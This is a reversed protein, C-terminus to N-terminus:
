IETMSAALRRLLPHLIYQLLTRSGTLVIVEAPMGPQMVRAGLQQLGQETVEVRGLYYAQKGDPDTLVDQSVSIIRGSVVLQPAHPFSSFRIDVEQGPQIRDIQLPPFRAEITLGETQPVLDLLKQAPQVVAGVSQVQLGVVQGAVPARIELLAVDQAVALIKKQIAVKQHEIELLSQKSRMVNTRLDNIATLQDMKSSELQLLKVTPAYGERVLDRVGTLEQEILQLQAQRNSLSQEFGRLAAQQALQNEQLGSLESSAAQHQAQVTLADLKFLLDGQAVMQGEHVAVERVIGGHLHQVAKRKTAITVQGPAPVGEALPAFAAWVVFGGFGLVFISMARRFSRSWDLEDLISSQTAQKM